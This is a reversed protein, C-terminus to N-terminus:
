HNALVILLMDAVMSGWGTVADWGPGANYGCNNGSTVDHFTAARLDTSMGYIIPNLYGLTPKGQLSRAEGVLAMFGAWQPTAMSTGGVTMWGQAGNQTGYFSQGSGVNANFAVDPFARKTYPMGPLTQWAPLDYLSSLGGGSGSMAGCGSWATENLAGQSDLTFTTGGVAVVDPHSAPWHAQMHGNLCGDSGHDGSAVLINVGQAIAREFVADMEIKHAPALDTECSGWSYSVVKSRNDDLIATFMQLEGLDDNTSSAFVHINAGPAIMGVFETDLETESASKEDYSAVGNFSVLDVTPSTPMGLTEFFHDVNEKKFGFYTAVAVDQGQGTFGAQYIPDFGYATKITAPSVGAPSLAPISTALYNSTRPHTSSTSLGTIAAIMSFHSLRDFIESDARVTIWLHTPSENLISLGARKLATILSQYDQSTPGSLERIESPDYHFPVGMAQALRVNQALSALKYNPNEKLRLVATIPQAWACPTELLIALMSVLFPSSLVHVKM